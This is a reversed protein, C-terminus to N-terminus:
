PMEKQQAARRRRLEEKYRAPDASFLAGTPCAEACATTDGKHICFDCKITVTKGPRVAGFPCVMVCMWCGVCQEPDCEVSGTDKSMAGAICADVCPAPECNRCAVTVTVGGSTNLRRRAIPLEAEFSVLHPDKTQSHELACAFECSHCGLCRQSDFYIKRM